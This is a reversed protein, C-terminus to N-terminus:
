TNQAREESEHGGQRAVAAAVKVDDEATISTGEYENRATNWSALAGTTPLVDDWDVTPELDANM